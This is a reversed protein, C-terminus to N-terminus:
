EWTKLSLSMEMWYNRQGRSPYKWYKGECRWNKVAKRERQQHQSDRVKLWNSRKYRSEKRNNRWLYHKGLMSM